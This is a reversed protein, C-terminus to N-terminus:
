KNIAIANFATSYAKDALDKKLGLYRSTTTVDRHNLLSQLTLVSDTSCDESEYYYRAFTKRISHTSFAIVKLSYKERFRKLKWNIYERGYAKGTQPNCFFPLTVDPTGILKYFYAIEEAFAKELKIRRGKTTKKEIKMLEERNLLDKWTLSLVDSVRLATCFSIRFYLEWTYLGDNHLCELLRIFEEIPLYDSTTLQGKIRTM